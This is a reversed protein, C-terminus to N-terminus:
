ARGVYDGTDTNVRIVEDQKIFLPVQVVLGTETTVPKTAASATDGRLAEAATTVKMEVISPLQVQSAKGDVFLIDYMQSEVMYKKSEELFKPELVTDEYTELDMFHYGEPDVYSFELKKTDTHLIEVRDTSRFKTTTSSGTELNRLVTQVFGAQRGQTRHMMDLVLHPQGQYDIVKGKRIDTPPVM